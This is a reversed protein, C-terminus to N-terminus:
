HSWLTFQRRDYHDTPRFLWGPQRDIAEYDRLRFVPLFQNTNPDYATKGTYNGYIRYETNQDFGYRQHSASEEPMRDPSRKQDELFIVLKAQHASQRPERLYGWFRTKEVFYRRGYFFDGTPEHAISFARQEETVGGM